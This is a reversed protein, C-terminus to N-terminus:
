FTWVSIAPAIVCFVSHPQQLVPYQPCYKCMPPLFYCSATSFQINLLKMVQTRVLYKSFSFISSSVLVCLLSSLSCPSVETGHLAFFKKALHCLILNELLVRSWPTKQPHTHTHMHTTVHRSFALIMSCSSADM